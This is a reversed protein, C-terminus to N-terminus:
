QKVLALADPTAGRWVQDMSTRMEAESPLLAPVVYMEPAVKFAIECQQMLSLFLAHEAPGYDKWVLAALLHTSFRGGQLVILPLARQRDLVAYIGDLAWELDLIVQNGFAGSRYFVNGSRHLYALVTNPVATKHVKRCLAEFEGYSIMKQSRRKELDRMVGCWNLPLRVKGYQEFQYRAASKLEIQLKEIRDPQKASSDTTRLREFGHGTPVPPTRIDTERDCQTQMVIIPARPGALSHVYDLWYALMQNRMIVGGQDTEDTNEYGAGM